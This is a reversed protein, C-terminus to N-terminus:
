GAAIHDKVNSCHIEGRAEWIFELDEPSAWRNNCEMCLRKIGIGKKETFTLERVASPDVRALTNACIECPEFIVAEVNM